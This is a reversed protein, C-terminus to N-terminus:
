HPRFVRGGGHLLGSSLLGQRICLHFCGKRKEWERYVGMNVSRLFGVFIEGQNNKVEDIVKRKPLGECEVELMGCRGNFDGCMIIPGLSRCKTVQEAWSQLAEEAGMGSKFDRTPPQM